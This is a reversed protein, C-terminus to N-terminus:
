KQGLEIRNFFRDIRLPASIHGKHFLNTIATRQCFFRLGQGWADFALLELPRVRYSRANWFATCGPLRIEANSLEARCGSMIAGPPM